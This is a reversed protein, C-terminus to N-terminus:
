AHGAEASPSSPISEGHSALTATSCRGRWIGAYQFSACDEAIQQDM